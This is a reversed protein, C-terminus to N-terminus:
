SVERMAALRHERTRRLRKDDVLEWGVDREGVQAKMRQAIQGAGFPHHLQTVRIQVVVEGRQTDGIGKCGLM